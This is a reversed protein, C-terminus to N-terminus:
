KSTKKTDEKLLDRIETLLKDTKSVKEVPKEETEKKRKLTNLLSIACFICFATILFDMINQLFNGYMIELPQTEESVVITWKLNSFNIKGTFFSICPTIIDSVLSSVIKSFSGGIIVGIAMDMVNGKMAFEKFETMFKKM